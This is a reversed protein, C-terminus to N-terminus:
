RINAMKKYMDDNSGTSNQSLVKVAAATSHLNSAEIGTAEAISNSRLLSNSDDLGFLSLGSGGITGMTRNASNHDLNGSSPPINFYNQRSSSTSAGTSNSRNLGGILHDSRSFSHQPLASLGTSQPTIASNLLNNSHRGNVSRVSSSVQSSASISQSIGVSNTSHNSLSKFTDDSGLLGKYIDTNQTPQPQTATNALLGRLGFSDSGSGFNTSSLTGELNNHPVAGLLTASNGAGGTHISTTTNIKNYMFNQKDSIRTAYVRELELQQKLNRANLKESELQKQLSIIVHSDKSGTTAENNNSSGTRSLPETSLLSESEDTKVSCIDNGQGKLKEIELRAADLESNQTNLTKMLRQLQKEKDALQRLLDANCLSLGQMRKNVSEITAAPIGATRSSDISGIGVATKYTVDSANNNMATVAAVPRNSGVAASLPAIAPNIKSPSPLPPPPSTLDPLTVPFVPHGSSIQGPSKTQETARVAAEYLSDVNGLVLVDPSCTTQNNNM